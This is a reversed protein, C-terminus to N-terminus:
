LGISGVPSPESPELVNALTIAWLPEGSSSLGALVAFHDPPRVGNAMRFEVGSEFNNGLGEIPWKVYHLEDPLGSGIVRHFGSDRASSVNSLVEQRGNTGRDVLEVSVPPKSYFSEQRPEGEGFLRVEDIMQPADLKSTVSIRAVPGPVAPAVRGKESGNMLIRIEADGVIADIRRWASDLPSSQRIVTSGSIVLTSAYSDVTIMADGAANELAILRAHGCCFPATHRFHYQVHMTGSPVLPSRATGLISLSQDVPGAPDAVNMLHAGPLGEWGDTGTTFSQRALLKAPASTAAVPSLMSASATVFALTLLSRIKM